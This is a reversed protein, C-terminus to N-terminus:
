EQLNPTFAIIFLWLAVRLFPLRISSITSSVITSTFTSGHDINISLHPHSTSATHSTLSQPPSLSPSNSILLPNTIYREPPNFSPPPSQLHRLGPKFARTSPPRGLPNTINTNNVATCSSPFSMLCAAGVGDRSGSVYVRKELCDANEEAVRRGQRRGRGQRYLAPVQQSSLPEFRCTCPPRQVLSSPVGSTFLAM